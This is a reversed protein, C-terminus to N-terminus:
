KNHLDLSDKSMLYVTFLITFLLVEVSSPLLAARDPRALM